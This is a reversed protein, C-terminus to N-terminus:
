RRLSSPLESDARAILGAIDDDPELAAVGVTIECRESDSALASRVTAMRDRARQLTVGSMVCLFEDGGLRVLLDYSRLHDRLRRVAHRLMADGAAHGSTDNVAKLGVVDIYIVALSGLTRHAREIEHELDALGAARTLTGTLQDTGAITLQKTLVERDAEAQARDRAAQLRDRSAQERDAAARARSDAACARDAAASRRATETELGTTHTEAVRWFDSSAVDRATLQRDRDDAAADREAAALDRASAITDRSAAAEVRV